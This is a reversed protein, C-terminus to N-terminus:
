QYYMQIYRSFVLLIVNPNLHKFQPNIQFSEMYGFNDWLPGYITLVVLKKVTCNALIHIMVRIGFLSSSVAVVVSRHFHLVASPAADM